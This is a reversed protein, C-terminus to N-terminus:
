ATNCSTQTTGSGLTEQYREDPIFRPDQVGDGGPPNRSVPSWRNPEDLFEWRNQFSIVFSVSYETPGPDQTGPLTLPLVKSNQATVRVIPLKPHIFEWKIEPAIYNKHFGETMQMKLREQGSFHVLQTDQPRRAVATRIYEDLKWSYEAVANGETRRNYGRGGMPWKLPMIQATPYATDKMMEAISDSLVGRTSKKGFWYPGYRIYYNRTYRSESERDPYVRSRQNDLGSTGSQLDNSTHIQEFWPHYIFYTIPDVPAFYGTYFASTFHVM